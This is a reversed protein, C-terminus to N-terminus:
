DKLRIYIAMADAYDAKSYIIGPYFDLRNWSCDQSTLVAMWGSYTPCDNARSFIHFPYPSSEMTLNRASSKTLDSWSSSKIRSQSFWNKITSNSGDFIVYAAVSGAKYIEFKVEAIPIQDWAELIPHRFYNPCVTEVEHYRCDLVNWSSPQYKNLFSNLVKAGTSM